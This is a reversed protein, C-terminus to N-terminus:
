FLGHCIQCGGGFRGAVHFRASPADLSPLVAPQQPGWTCPEGVKAPMFDDDTETEEDDVASHTAWSDCDNGKAGAAGGEALKGAAARPGGREMNRAPEEKHNDEAEDVVDVLENQETLPISKRRQRGVGITVCCVRDSFLM